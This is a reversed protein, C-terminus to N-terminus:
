QARSNRDCPSQMNFVLVKNFWSDVLEMICTKYM